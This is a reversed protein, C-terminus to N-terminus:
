EGHIGALLKKLARKYRMKASSLGIGLKKAAQAETLGEFIRLDLISKSEEKLAGFNRMLIQLTEEAICEGEPTDDAPGVFKHGAELLAELSSYREREEIKRKIYGSVVHEIVRRAHTVYKTPDRPPHRWLRTRVDTKVEDKRGLLDPAKRRLYGAVIRELERDDPGTHGVGSM